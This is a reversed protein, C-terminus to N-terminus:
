ELTTSDLVTSAEQYYSLIGDKRAVYYGNSLITGRDAMGSIFEAFSLPLIEIIM